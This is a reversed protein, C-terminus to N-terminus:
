NDEDSSDKDDDSDDVGGSRKRKKSRSVLGISKAIRCLYKENTEARKDLMSMQMQLQQQFMSQQISMQQTANQMQMSLMNAEDQIRREIALCCFIRDTLAGPKGTPKQMRNCLKRTWNDCLDEGQCLTGENSERQYDAAVGRWAELGQPLLREVIDMLIYNKYKPIGAVRGKPAARGQSKSDMIVALDPPFDPPPLFDPLPPWGVIGSKQGGGSRACFLPWTFLRAESFRSELAFTKV